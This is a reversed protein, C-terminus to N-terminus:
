LLKRFPYIFFTYLKENLPRALHAALTLFTSNKLDENWIDVLSAALKKDKAVIGGEFNYLLSINDLNLSGVISYKKDFVFTKAHIMCSEYLYIEIGNEILRPVYSQFGFDVMRHNSHRPTLVKVEVGRRSARILARLLRNDPLFYPTTILIERKSLNILKIITRYLYRKGPLPSTNMYCYGDDDTFIDINSKFRARLRDAPKQQIIWMENFTRIIDEVVPGEIMMHTDRWDKMEDSLCVGGIYATKEDIIMIRRHDRFYWVSINKPYWPILPNFFEIAIGEKELEKSISSNYFYFSGVTDLLMRVKVGERAKKKLTDFFKQGISNTSIMFQEIDISREAKEISSLMANWASESTLYFEHRHSEKM